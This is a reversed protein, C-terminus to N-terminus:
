RCPSAPPSAAPATSAVPRTNKEDAFTAWLNEFHITEGAVLITVPVPNCKVSLAMEGKLVQHIKQFVRKAPGVEYRVRSFQPWTAVALKKHNFTFGYGKMRIASYSIGFLYIKTIELKGHLKLKLTQIIKKKDTQNIWWEVKETWEDMESTLNAARSRLQRIDNTFFDQWKIQFIALEGTTRDFIAGDLDTLIKGDKRIKTSGPVCIYRSGQFLAYIESRMWEERPESLQNRAHPDRWEYLSRVSLLPNRVLSSVPRLLLGNGLDILLPMFPTTHKALVTVEDARLVITDLAANVEAEDFGTFDVISQALEQRPGWITLSQPISIEKHRKMALLAFRVHKSHLGAIVASVAALKPGPCDNFSIDPHIGADHRWDRMQEASLALFHNDVEPLADYGMMIGHGSDWPFLLPEMLSNVDGCLWGEFPSNMGLGFYSGPLDQFISIHDIDFIGWDGSLLDKGKQKLVAEMKKHRIPELIDLFQVSTGESSKVVFRHNELKASVMGSEIMDATRKLLVSRGLQHLLKMAFSRTEGTSERMPIGGYHKLTSLLLAAGQNWGWQMIELDHTPLRMKEPLLDQFVSWYDLVRITEVFIVFRQSEDKPLLAQISEIGQKSLSLFKQSIETSDM